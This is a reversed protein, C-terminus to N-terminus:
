IQSDQERPKNGQACYSTLRPRKRPPQTSFISSSREERCSEDMGPLSDIVRDKPFDARPSLEPSSSPTIHATAFNSLATPSLYPIGKKPCIGTNRYFTALRNWLSYVRPHSESIDENKM